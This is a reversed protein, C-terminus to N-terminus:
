RGTVIPSQAPSVDLHTPGPRNLERVLKKRKLQSLLRECASGISRWASIAEAPTFKTNKFEALCAPRYTQGCLEGVWKEYAEVAMCAEALLQLARRAENPNRPSYKSPLQDIHWLPLNLLLTSSLEPTFNFRNLFIGGSQAANAYFLGFSWLTLSRPSSSDDALDLRYATGGGADNPRRFQEFGYTILLNGEASRVDRGWAWCQQNLLAEGRRKVRAPLLPLLSKDKNCIAHQNLGSM